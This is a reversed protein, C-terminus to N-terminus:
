NLQKRNKISLVTLIGVFLLVIGWGLIPMWVSGLSAKTFLSGFFSVLFSISYGVGFQLGIGGFFWKRSKIESNMAGIAAFCPPTFLNLM